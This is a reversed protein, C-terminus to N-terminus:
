IFLYFIFLFIKFLFIVLSSSFLIFFYNYVTYM